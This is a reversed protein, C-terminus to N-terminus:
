FASIDAKAQKRSFAKIPLGAFIVHFFPHQKSLARDEANSVFPLTAVHLWMSSLM